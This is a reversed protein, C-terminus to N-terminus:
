AFSSLFSSVLQGDNKGTTDCLPKSFLSRVCEKRRQRTRKSTASFAEARAPDKEIIVSNAPRFCIRVVITEFFAANGSEALVKSTYFELFPTANGGSRFPKRQQDLIKLLSYSCLTPLLKMPLIYKSKIVRFNRTYCGLPYSKVISRLIFNLKNRSCDIEKRTGRRERPVVFTGKRTSTPHHELGHAPSWVARPCNRHFAIRDYPHSQASIINAVASQRCLM